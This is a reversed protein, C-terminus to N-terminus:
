HSLIRPKDLMLYNKNIILFWAFHERLLLPSHLSLLTLFLLGCVACLLMHHSAFGGTVGLVVWGDPCGCQLTRRYSEAATDPGQTFWWVGIAGILEVRTERGVAVWGNPQSEM